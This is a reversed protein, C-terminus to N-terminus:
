TLKYASNPIVLIKGKETFKNILNLEYIKQYILTSYLLFSTILEDKLLYKINGNLKRM